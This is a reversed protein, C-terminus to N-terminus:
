SKMLFRLRLPKLIFLALGVVAFNLIATAVFVM